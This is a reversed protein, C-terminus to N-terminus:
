RILVFVFDHFDFDLVLFKSQEIAKQSGVSMKLRHRYLKSIGKNECLAAM